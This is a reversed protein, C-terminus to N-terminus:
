SSRDLRLVRYHPDRFLETASAIDEDGDERPWVVHTVGYERVLDELASAREARPGLYLRRLRRVREDWEVLEDDRYPHSQSDAVIPVGSNLRFDRFLEVDRSTASVPVVWVDGRRVAGKAFAIVGRDPLGEDARREARMKYIGGLVLALVVIACTATAARNGSLAISSRETVRRVIAAQIMASAIPILVVSIRWPFALLLTRNGSAVAIVAIALAALGCTALVGFLRTGRVLWLALLFVGIQIGTQAVPWTSPLAHHPILEEVLLRQAREHIPVPAAPFTSVVYAATPLWLLGALVVRRAVHSLSSGQRYADVTWALAFIASSLLYTPHLAAALSSLATALIWNGRLHLWTAPVLLLGCVSPSLKSSLAWQTALGIHLLQPVDVGLTQLSVFRAIISHLVLLLTVFLPLAGPRSDLGFTVAALGVLGALYLAFFGVSWAHFFWSGPIRCTWEVLLSFAPTPDATSSLWDEALFGEGCAALGHLFYTNQTARYLPSLTYVLAFVLGLCAFLAIRRLTKM